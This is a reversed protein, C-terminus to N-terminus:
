QAGGKVVAAELVYRDSFEDRVTAIHVGKKKLKLVCPWLGPAPKKLSRYDWPLGGPGAEALAVLAWTIESAEIVVPKRGDDPIVCFWDSVIPQGQSKSKRIIHVGSGCRSPLGAGSAGGLAGPNENEFGSM